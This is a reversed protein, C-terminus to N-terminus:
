CNFDELFDELLKFEVAVALARFNAFKNESEKCFEMIIPNIERKYSGHCECVNSFFDSKIKKCRVCKDPASIYLKYYTNLLELIRSEILSNPYKSECYCFWSKEEFLFDEFVKVNRLTKCSEKGCSLNILTFDYFIKQFKTEDQTRDIKLFKLFSVKLGDVIEQINESNVSLIEVILNMFEYALNDSRKEAGILSVPDWNKMMENDEKKHKRDPTLIILDQKKSNKRRIKDEDDSRDNEIFSDDYLDEEDESNEFSMNDRDDFRNHSVPEKFSSTGIHSGKKHTQEYKVFDANRQKEQLFSLLNYFDSCFNNILYNELGKEINETQLKTANQSLAKGFDNKQMLQFYHEIYRNIIEFFYQHVENPLFKHISWESILALQEQQDEIKEDVNPDFRHVIGVYNNIDYFLITKYIQDVDLFLHYFFPDKTITELIFNTSNIASTLTTKQTDLFIKYPNAFIVKTGLSEFKFILEKFLAKSVKNITIEMIPDYFKSDESCIWPFLKDLLDSAATKDHKKFDEIFTKFLTKVIKLGTKNFSTYHNQCNFMNVNKSSKDKIERDLSIFEEMVSLACNFFNHINVECVYNHCFNPRSYVCQLENQTLFDEIEYFSEGKVGFDPKKNNSYWLISNNKILERAFLIDLCKLLSKDYTNKMNCIPIRTYQSLKDLKLLEPELNSLDNLSKEIFIKDPILDDIKSRDFKFPKFELVPSDKWTNVIERSATLSKSSLVILVPCKKAYTDIENKIQSLKQAFVSMERCTIIDDNTININIDANSFSENSMLLKFNERLLVILNQSVMESKNERSLRLVKIFNRSFIMTFLKQKYSVSWVYIFFRNKDLISNLFFTPSEHQFDPKLNEISIAGSKTHSKAENKCVSGSLLIAKFDLPVNTEYVGEKNPDTLFQTFKWYNSQFDLEDHEFEYLFKNSKEHPLQKKSLKFNPNNIGEDVFCNIYFFRNVEVWTFSQVLNGIIFWYKIMGNSQPQDIKCVHWISKNQFAKGAQAFESINQRDRVTNQPLISSKNILRQQLWYNKRTQLKDFAEQEILSTPRKNESQIIPLIAKVPQTFIPQKNVNITKEIQNDTKKVVNEFTLTKQKGSKENVKKKLWDPCGLEPIPNELGQLIAPIIIIKQITSGLRELYYDWDLISKLSLDTEEGTKLWMRLYRKKQVEDLSFVTIPVARENLPANEPSKSIIFHCNLGTGKLLDEGLFQSLRKAATLAIGKQVGYEDISKSLVKMEGLLEILELDSLKAGKSKLIAVWKKATESCASYLAKLSSGELFKAFIESQFIKVIGLEGRRKIEFGKIETIKNEFNFVVYRKKLKKNEEKSAPIIMAKYPGDLEFFIQMEDRIIYEGTEKNLEQYQTNKFKDYILFNILSCIFSFNINKGNKTKLQYKEPFGKPLLTWIGDTDLELPKGVKEFLNRAEQIIDKGTNTVMAAMKMSYWRAGKKMVYGYFSNLIIKHALQLSDFLVCLTGAENAKEFNNKKTNEKEEIGYFRAKNKYDYRRDRFNRITDVYFSNERMCVINERPQVVTKHVSKFNKQCFIKLTNKIETKETNALLKEYELKKIPYHTVKWDWSLMRKCQNKKENYLCNSCIQDNVIATPQLRNTLIINPYMSAVDVHYILPNKLIVKNPTLIIEDRLLILQEKIEAVVEKFNVIDESILKESHERKLYFDIVNEVNDILEEYKSPDLKFDQKIDARYAGNNLCEVYGGIYTENEILYGNYYKTKNDSKKNPFVIQNEFAQAMLLNECLTGSGRRLVDDATMPVITCLAFIFDHIHKIYLFYTAVADSVSYEALKQPNHKAMTLIEEPDCEIPNYGLKYKTVSKLGQSGQPLFADRKVWYYCDLHLFIFQGHYVNESKGAILGIEQEVNIGCIEARKLIFPIDFMDGNFSTLIFPKALKIHNFFRLIADKETPENFVTVFQTFEPKPSYEFGHIDEAVIERNVILFTNRDIVYSILLISDIRSDPFKLPLKTTEIDFALVSFEPKELIRHLIEFKQLFGKEVNIQYWFSVRLQKDICVRASYNIDYENIETIMEAVNETFARGNEHIRTSTSTRRFSLMKQIDSRVFFMDSEKSFSCKIFKTRIGSLHNMTQLDVKEEIKVSSFKGEYKKELYSVVDAETNTNCRLLFYPNYKLYCNFWEGNQSYFILLLATIEQNDEDTITVTRFNALFAISNFNKRSSKIQFIKSEASEEFKKEEIVPQDNTKKWPAISNPYKKKFNNYSM